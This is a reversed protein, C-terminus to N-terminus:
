SRPATWVSASCPGLVCSHAQGLRVKPHVGDAWVYVFDRDALDRAQFAAHDDAWQKTLRTVTAPSLGATGGLFQELAPVFEGFSLGHLYLLPLM